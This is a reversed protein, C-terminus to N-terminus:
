LADSISTLPLRVTDGCINLLNLCYKIGSPNGEAFFSGTIDLVKFHLKRAQEFNGDLGAQIMSSFVKPLANAVVYIVGDGGMALFSLTLADEGSLLAFDEPKNKLIEMVQGMNGSAEKVGVINEIKALEFVT